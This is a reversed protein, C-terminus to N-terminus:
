RSECEDPHSGTMTKLNGFERRELFRDATALGRALLHGTEIIVKPRIRWIVEQLRLLDEPLQLIPFGLWSFNRYYNLSWGIRVM